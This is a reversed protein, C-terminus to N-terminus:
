RVRYRLTPREKPKVTTHANFDTRPIEVTKKGEKDVLEFEFMAVFHSIIVNNELKAFKMGVCPHRGAGWGVYGMTRKKDEAKEEYRSPDWKEPEPYM